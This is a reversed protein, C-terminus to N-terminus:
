TFEPGNVSEKDSAHLLFRRSRLSVFTVLMTVGM